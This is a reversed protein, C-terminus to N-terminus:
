VTELYLHELHLTQEDAGYRFVLDFLYDMGQFTMEFRFVQGSQTSAFSTRSISAPGESLRQFESEVRGRVPGPLKLLMAEVRESRVLHFAVPV